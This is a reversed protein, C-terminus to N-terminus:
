PARPFWPRDPDLAVLVKGTNLDRVLLGTRVPRPVEALTHALAGTPLPERELTVSPAPAPQPQTAQAPPAPTSSQAAVPLLLFSLLLFRRM